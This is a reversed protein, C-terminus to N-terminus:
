DQEWSIKVSYFDSVVLNGLTFPKYCNWKYGQHGCQSTNCLFVPMEFLSSAAQLEIHSGWVRTCAIWDTHEQFSWHNMWRGTAKSFLKRMKLHGLESGYVIYLKIQKAGEKKKLFTESSTFYTSVKSHPSCLLKETIKWYSNRSQQEIDTCLIIQTVWKM